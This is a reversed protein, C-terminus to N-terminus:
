MGSENRPCTILNMTRVGHFKFYSRMLGNLQIQEPNVKRASISATGFFHIFLLILLMKTSTNTTYYLYGALIDLIVKLKISPM